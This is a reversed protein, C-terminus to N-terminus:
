PMTYRRVHRWGHGTADREQVMWYNYGAGTETTERADLLARHARTMAARVNISQIERTVRAAPRQTDGITVLYRPM